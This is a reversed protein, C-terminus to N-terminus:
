TSLIIQPKVPYVFLFWRIRAARSATHKWVRSIKSAIFKSQPMTKFLSLTSPFNLAFLKNICNCDSKHPIGTQSNSIRNSLSCILLFHKRTRAWCRSVVANPTAITAAWASPILANTSFGSVLYTIINRRIQIVLSHWMIILIM